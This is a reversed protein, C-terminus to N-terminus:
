YTVTVSPVRAAFSAASLVPIIPGSPFSYIRTPEARFLQWPNASLSEIDLGTIPLRAWLLLHVGTGAVHGGRINRNLLDLPYDTLTEPASYFGTAGYILPKKSGNVACSYALNDDLSWAMTCVDGVGHVPDVTAAHLQYGSALHARLQYAIRGAGVTETQTSNIRMDDIYNGGVAVNGQVYRMATDLAIFQVVAVHRGPQAHMVRGANIYSAGTTGRAGVGGLSTEYEVPGSQGYDAGIIRRQAGVFARADPHAFSDALEM